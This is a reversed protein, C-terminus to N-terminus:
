GTSADRAPDLQVVMRVINGSGTSVLELQDVLAQILFTGWGRNPAKGELQDSINPPVRSLIGPPFPRSSEDSVEITLSNAVATFDIRVRKTADQSNGHEIANTVAEGLATRIDEARGPSFGM